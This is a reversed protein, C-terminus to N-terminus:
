FQETHKSDCKVVFAFKKVGNNLLLDQKSGALLELGTTDRSFEEIWRIADMELTTTSVFMKKQM